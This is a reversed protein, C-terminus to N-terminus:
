VGTKNGSVSGAAASGASAAAKAVDGFLGSVTDRAKDPTLGLEDLRALGAERAAGAAGRAAGNIKQGVGGLLQTERETKPLLVAALAGAALGGVLAVLPNAAVADAARHTADSATDRADHLVTSAKDKADELVGGVKDRATSFAETTANRASDLRGTDNAAHTDNRDNM